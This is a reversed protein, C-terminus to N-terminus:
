AFTDAGKYENKLNCIYVYHGINQCDEKYIIGLEKAECSKINKDIIVDQYLTSVITVVIFISCLVFFCILLIENLIYETKSM